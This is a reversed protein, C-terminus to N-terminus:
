HRYKKKEKKSLILSFPMQERGEYDVDFDMDIGQASVIATIMFTIGLKDDVATGEFGQGTKEAKIAYNQQSDKMTGTLFQGKEKLELTINEGNFFATYQGGFQAKCPILAVLLLAVITLQKM